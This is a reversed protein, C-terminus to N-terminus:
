VLLSSVPKWQQHLICVKAQYYEEKWLWNSYDLVGCKWKALSWGCYSRWGRGHEVQSWFDMRGISFIGIDVFLNSCPLCSYFFIVYCTGWVALRYITKSITHASRKTRIFRLVSPQLLERAHEDSNWLEKYRWNGNVGVERVAPWMRHDTCRVHDERRREFQTWCASEAVKRCSWGSGEGFQGCANQLKSSQVGVRM